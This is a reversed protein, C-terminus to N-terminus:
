TAAEKTPLANHKWWRYYNPSLWWGNYERGVLRDNSLRREWGERDTYNEPWKVKLM